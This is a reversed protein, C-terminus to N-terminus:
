IIINPKAATMSTPVNRSISGIAVISIREVGKKSLRNVEVEATKIMADAAQVGASVTKFEAMGIAKSM